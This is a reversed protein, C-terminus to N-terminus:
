RETNIQSIIIALLRFLFSDSLVPWGKGGRRKTRKKGRRVVVEEEEKRSWPSLM